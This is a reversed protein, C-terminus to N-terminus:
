LGDQCRSVKLIHLGCMLQVDMEARIGGKELKCILQAATAPKGGDIIWLGLLGMPQSTRTNCQCKSICMMHRHYRPKRLNAPDDLSM